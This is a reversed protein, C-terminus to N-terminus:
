QNVPEFTEYVRDRLSQQMNIHSGLHGCLIIDGHYDSENVVTEIHRELIGTFWLYPAIFIQSQNGKLADKLTDEFSPGCAALYCVELDHIGTMKSLDAGIKSIDIQTQPHYSGRGVLILRADPKPPVGTEQLRDKLVSTIRHQVGLPEGYLFRIDSYDKKLQNIVEPIDKFYHGASLLLVPVVSIETVGKDFLNRVGTKIDPASLELFCIEQHEIDVKDIVLNIFDVAEKAAETVRSGHSVYLVGKM